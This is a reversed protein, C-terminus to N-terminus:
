GNVRKNLIEFSNVPEVSFKEVQPLDKRAIWKDINEYAVTEVNIHKPLCGDILIIKINFTTGMKHYLMRSNINIVDVVNYNSALYVFYFWDQLGKIKNERYEIHGGVIIASKGDKKLLELANASMKHELKSLKVGKYIEGKEVAGFPPNTIIADFNELDFPEKGDQNLVEKFGQKKLSWVRDKDIDNVIFNKPDGYITLMGNGASPEFYRGEKNLQCFKGIIWAIPLSTSYQQLLITESTKQSLNSQDEYIQLIDEFDKGRAELVIALETIEKIVKQEAFGGHQLGLEKAYKEIRVRSTKEELTLVYQLLKLKSAERPNVLELSNIADQIPKLYDIPQILPTEEDTISDILGQKRRETPSKEKESENWDEEKSEAIPTESEIGKIYNIANEKSGFNKVIKGNPLNLIEVQYGVISHNNDEIVDKKDFVKAINVVINDKTYFNYHPLKSTFGLQELKNKEGGEVKGGDAFKRNGEIVEMAKEKGINGWSAWKINAVVGAINHNHQHRAKFSQWRGYFEEEDKLWYGRESIKLLNEFSENGCINGGEDWIDSHDKKIKKGYRLVESDPMEFDSILGGKEFMSNDHNCKHCVYLDNGGDKADWKWGCKQCEIETDSVKGDVSFM